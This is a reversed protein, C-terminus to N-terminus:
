GGFADVAIGKDAITIATIANTMPIRTVSRNRRIRCGRGSDKEADPSIVRIKPIASDAAAITRATTAMERPLADSCAM